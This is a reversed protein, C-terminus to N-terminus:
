KAINSARVPPSALDAGPLPGLGVVMDAMVESAQALVVDPTDEDELEEASKVPPLKREARRQNERTLREAEIRTREAQRTKLNLSLSKQQRLTNIAAIDSVLWRYDPDRQARSGEEVALRALPVRTPGANTRFPV